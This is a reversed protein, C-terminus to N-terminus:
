VPCVDPVRKPVVAFKVGAKACGINPVPKEVGTTFWCGAVPRKPDAAAGVAEGDVKSDTKPAAEKPAALEEGGFGEFLANKANALNADALDCSSLRESNTVDAESGPLSSGVAAIPIGENNM